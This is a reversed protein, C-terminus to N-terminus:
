NQFKLLFVIPQAPRGWGAGTVRVHSPDACKVCARSAGSKLIAWRTAAIWCTRSRTLKVATSSQGATFCSWSRYVNLECASPVNSCTKLYVAIIYSGTESTYFDEQENTEFRNGHSQGDLVCCSNCLMCSSRTQAQTASCCVALAILLQLFVVGCVCLHRWKAGSFSFSTLTGDDKWFVQHLGPAM